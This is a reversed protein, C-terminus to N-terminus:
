VVSSLKKGECIKMVRTKLQDGQFFIIFVSKYVPDGSNIDELPTEIEAQRLFVNGRCARWLMREFAPMRERLAVGAVFRNFHPVGPGGWSLPPSSRTLIQHLAFKRPHTRLM